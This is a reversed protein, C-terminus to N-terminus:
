RTIQDLGVSVAQHYIETIACEARKLSVDRKLFNVRYAEGVQVGIMAKVHASIVDEAGIM